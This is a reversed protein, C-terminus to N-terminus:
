AFATLVPGIPGILFPAPGTRDQSLTLSLEGWAASKPATRHHIDIATLGILRASRSRVSIPGIIPGPNKALKEGVRDSREIKPNKM